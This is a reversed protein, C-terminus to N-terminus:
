AMDGQCKWTLGYRKRGVMYGTLYTNCAFLGDNKAAEECNGTLKSITEKQCAGQRILLETVGAPIM